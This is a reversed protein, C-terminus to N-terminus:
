PAASPPPVPPLNANAPRLPPAPRMAKLLDPLTTSTYGGPVEFVSADVPATSIEVVESDTQVFPTSPDYAGLVQQIKGPALATIQGLIPVYLEVHTRLAPATSKSMQEAMKALGDSLGPFNPLMQQMATAPDASIQKWSHAAFETLAPVRNVEAPLPTWIHLVLKMLTVTDGSKLTGVGPPFGPPIVMQMSITCETEEAQIGLIADTKGTKQISFDPTISKLFAQAAPPMPPLAMASGLVGPFDKAYVTAFLKHETDILTIQQKTLDMVSITRGANSYGKDGKIQVVTERPFQTQPNKAMQEAAAPPLGEALKMNMKFRITTDAHLLAPASLLMLLVFHRLPRM